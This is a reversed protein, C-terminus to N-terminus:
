GDAGGHLGHIASYIFGGVDAVFKGEDMVGLTGDPKRYHDFFERELKERFERRNTVGRLEDLVIGLRKPEAM